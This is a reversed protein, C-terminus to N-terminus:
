NSRAVLAPGILPWSLAVAIGTVAGVSQGVAIAVIGEAGATRSIVPTVILPTVTALAPVIAFAALTRGAQTVQRVRRRVRLGQQSM